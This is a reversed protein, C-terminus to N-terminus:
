LTVLTHMGGKGRRLPARSNQAPDIDKNGTANVLPVPSRPNSLSLNRNSFHTSVKTKKTGLVAREGIYRYIYIYIYIM